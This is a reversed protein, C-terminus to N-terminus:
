MVPLALVSHVYVSVAAVVLTSLPVSEAKVDSAMADPLVANLPRASTGTGSGPTVPNSMAAPPAAALPQVENGAATMCQSYTIDYQQQTGYGSAAGANAAAGGSALAGVGAGIAAGAGANATASGIAAGIGAGALTGLAVTGAAAQNAAVQPSGNGISAAANQRCAADQQQFLVYDGGKPPLALVAPGAPPPTACATLALAAGALASIPTTQTMMEGQLANM